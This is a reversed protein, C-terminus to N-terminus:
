CQLCCTFGSFMALEARCDSVIRPFGATLYFTIEAM